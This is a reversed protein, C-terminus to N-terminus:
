LRNLLTIVQDFEKILIPLSNDAKERNSNACAKEVQYAMSELETMGISAALGKLTHAANCATTYDEIDLAATIVDPLGANKERFSLLLHQYVSQNGGLRMLAMNVEVGNNKLLEAVNSFTVGDNSSESTKGAPVSFESTASPITMNREDKGTQTIWRDLIDDLETVNIPKTIYDVMGADLAKQRDMSRANASAGVIPINKESFRELIIRTADYGNLVPMQVDMIIIAYRETDGLSEMAELAEQGNEAIDVKLEREELLGVFVDQNSENDEVVLIREGKFKVASCETYKGNNGKEQNSKNDSFISNLSNILSSPSIPKTLVEGLTVNLLRAEKQLESEDYATVMIVPPNENKEIIYDLQSITELGNMGPLKWDMLIVDFQQKFRISREVESLAEEGTSSSVVEFGIAELNESLIQRANANDEVVLGRMHSFKETQTLRASLVGSQGKTMVLNFYFSSGKGSESEFALDSEMLRLLRQVIVLGLGTGGYNRTISNDAQSFPKFLKGQEHKSIGIGTDTISFRLIVSNDTDDLIRVKLRVEGAETFKVANSCLNILIHRFQVPDGIFTEPLEPDIDFLLEIGKKQAIPSLMNGVDVILDELSFSINELELKSAELKSYDLIDNIISLLNKAASIAKNIYSRQKQSLDSQLTLHCMGIVANMPTRIEHSMTALFEGKARNAVEASERSLDLSHYTDRLVQNLEIMETRWRVIKNMSILGIVLLLCVALIGGGTIYYIAKSLQLHIANGVEDLADHFQIMGDVYSAKAKIYASNNLLEWASNTQKKEILDFARLEFNVLKTNAAKTNNLAQLVADSRSLRIADNIYRNLLPEHELYRTIWVKDGSAASLRASMTLVEDLYTIQHSLNNLDIKKELLNNLRGKAYIATVTLSLGLLMVLGLLGLLLIQPFPPIETNRNVENLPRNHDTGVEQKYVSENIGM